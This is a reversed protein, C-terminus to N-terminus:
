DAEPLLRESQLDAITKPINMPILGIRIKVKMKMLLKTLFIRLITDSMMLTMAMRNMM